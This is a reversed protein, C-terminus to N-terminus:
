LVKITAKQKKCKATQDRLCRLRKSVPLCLCPSFKRQLCEITNNVTRKNKSAKECPFSFLVDYKTTGIRERLTLAVRTTKFTCFKTIAKYKIFFTFCKSKHVSLPEIIFASSSSSYYTGNAVLFLALLISMPAISLM